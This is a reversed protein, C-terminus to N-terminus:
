IKNPDIVHRDYKFGIKARCVMGEVKVFASRSIRSAKKIAEAYM